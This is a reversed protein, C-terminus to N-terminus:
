EAHADNTNWYSYEYNRWLLLFFSCIWGIFLCVPFEKFLLFYNVSYIFTQQSSGIFFMILGFHYLYVQFSVRGLPVFFSSSLRFIIFIDICKILQITALIYFHLFCFSPSDQSSFYERFHYIYINNLTMGYIWIREYNLFIHFKGIIISSHGLYLVLYDSFGNYNDSGILTISYGILLEYLPQTELEQAYSIWFVEMSKSNLICIDLISEWSILLQV